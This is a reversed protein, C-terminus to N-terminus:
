WVARVAKDFEERMAVYGSPPVTQLADVLQQFNPWDPPTSLGPMLGYSYGVKVIANQAEPTLFWAQFLQAVKPNPADKIIMTSGYLPVAMGPIAKHGVRAGADKLRLYRSHAAWPMMAVSGTTLNNLFPTMSPVVNANAKIGKMLEPTIKKSRYLEAWCLTTAAGALPDDIVMGKYKPDLLDNISNPLDQPKLRDTNYLIGFPDAFQIIFNGKDDTYRDALGGINPPRFPQSRNHAHLSLVEMMGAMVVDGVHQGSSFEADLKTILPAGAIPSGVIATKPFRQQFIDWLPKYVASYAGYIVVQSQKAAVADDYLKTIAKANSESGAWASDNAAQGSARGSVGMIAIGSTGALFKRRNMSM